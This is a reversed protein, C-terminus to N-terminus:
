ESTLATVQRGRYVGVALLMALLVWRLCERLLWKERVFQASPIDVLLSKEVGIPVSALMRGSASFVESPGGDVLRVLPLGAEAAALRALDRHGRRGSASAIWRDSVPNFVFDARWQALADYTSPFMGEYCIAIGARIGSVEFGGHEAQGPLFADRRQAFMISVWAPVSEAFPVLLRKDYRCPDCAGVALVSNHANDTSMSRVTAGFLLAEGPQILHEVRRRHWGEDARKPSAREGWFILRRGLAHEKLQATQRAYSHFREDATTSQGSPVQVVVGPTFRVAPTEGSACHPFVLPVAVLALRRLGRMQVAAVALWALLVAILSRGVWALAEAGYTDVLAVSASYPAFWPWWSECVGYALAFIGARQWSSRGLRGAFILLAFPLAQTLAVVLLACSGGVLTVQGYNWLAGPVWHLGLTWACAAGAFVLLGNQVKRPAQSLESLALLVLWEWYVGGYRIISLCLAGVLLALVFTNWLKARENM